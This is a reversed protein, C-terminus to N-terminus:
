YKKYFSIEDCTSGGEARLRNKTDAGWAGNSPGLACEGFEEDEPPKDVSAEQLVSINDGSCFHATQSKSRKHSYETGNGGYCYKAGTKGSTGQVKSGTGRNENVTKEPGRKSYGIVITNRSGKHASPGALGRHSLSSSTGSEEIGTERQRKQKQHM